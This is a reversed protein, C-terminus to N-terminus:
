SRTAEVIEDVLREEAEALRTKELEHLYGMANFIVGCLADSISSRAIASCDRHCLHADHLHRCLSKMYADVPMGKQWNDSSRLGGDAQRRHRHMYECYRNIALPSLFGEPDLKEDDSDRIAGSPFTRM